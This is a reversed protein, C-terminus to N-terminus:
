DKKYRTKDDESYIHKNDINSTLYAIIDKPTADYAIENEKIGALEFETENIKRFEFLYFGEETNGDAPNYACLFLKKGVTSLIIRRESLYDVKGASDIDFCALNGKKNGNKLLYGEKKTHGDKVEHWKGPLWKPVDCSGEDISNKILLPCGALLFMAALLSYVVIRKM